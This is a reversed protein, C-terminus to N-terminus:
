FYEKSLSDLFNQFNEGYSMFEIDDLVSKIEEDTKLSTEYYSESFKYFGLDELLSTVEYPIYYDLDHENLFTESTVICIIRTGTELETSHDAFAWFYKENVM